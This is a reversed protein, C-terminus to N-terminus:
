LASTWCSAITSRDLAHLLIDMRTALLTYLPLLQKQKIGTTYCCRSHQKIDVKGGARRQRWEARCGERGSWSALQPALNLITEFGLGVQFLEPQVNPAHFCCSPPLLSPTPLLSLLSGPVALAAAEETENNGSFDARFPQDALRHKLVQQSM